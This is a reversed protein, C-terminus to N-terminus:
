RFQISSSYNLAKTFIDCIQDNKSCFKVELSGSIVQDRIFHHSLEIHKTRGHFMLNKTMLITSRNSSYTM